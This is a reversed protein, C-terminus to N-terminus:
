GNLVHAAVSVLRYGQPTLQDFTDQFASSTQGFRGQWLTSPDHIWASAYYPTGNLVHAAVSVLRYGWPHTTVVWYYVKGKDLTPFSCSHASVNSCIPVDSFKDINDKLFVNYGTAGAVPDWSFSDNLNTVIAGIAPYPNYFGPDLTSTLKPMSVNYAEMNSLYDDEIVKAYLGTQELQHDLQDGSGNGCHVQCTTTEAEGGGSPYLTICTDLNGFTTVADIYSPASLDLGTRTVDSNIMGRDASWAYDSFAISLLLLVAIILKKFM